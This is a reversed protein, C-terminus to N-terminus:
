AARTNQQILVSLKLTVDMLYQRNFYNGRVNLVVSIMALIPSVGSQVILHNFPLILVVVSM